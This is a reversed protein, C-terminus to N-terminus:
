QIPGTARHNVAGEIKSLWGRSRSVPWVTWTVPVRDSVVDREIALYPWSRALLGPLEESSVDQRFIETRKDDHIGIYWFQPDDLAAAPLARPDLMIRVQWTYSKEWGAPGVPNPPEAGRLTYDQVRRDRFHIGAYNEYEQFSRMSGCGYQGIYPHLLFNRVKKKSLLDLEYWSPETAQYFLHDSWHKREADRIYHHWTIVEPPHFLDYGSTFARITLSIEEGIFYLEPDYPVDEIFAGITFLFGASLFRARVPQTGNLPERIPHPYFVPIGEETFHHFDVQLPAGVLVEPAGPIFPPGYTTIIAKSSGTSAAWRLLRIDWDQIFRHHSDIQLFYEEGEWLRMIEGRAWCVGRSQRWDVDIIRFRPDGFFPLLPEEFGHQWCIGFRCQEPYRAKALCDLVTPVLQPDRYAAISIFIRL